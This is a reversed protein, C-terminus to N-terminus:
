WQSVMKVLQKFYFGSDLQTVKGEFFKYHSSCSSFLWSELVYSQGLYFPGTPTPLEFQVTSFTWEINPSIQKLPKQTIITQKSHVSLIKLGPAYRYHFFFLWQLVLKCLNVLSHLKRKPGSHAFKPPSFSIHMALFSGLINIMCEIKSIRCQKRKGQL